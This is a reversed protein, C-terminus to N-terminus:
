DTVCYPLGPMPTYNEISQIRRFWEHIASYKHLPIHGEEALAIYPYCAIDAISLQDTAMWHRHKLHRNIWILLKEGQQQAFNLDGTHKFKIIARAKALTHFIEDNAVCLWQTIQSMSLPDDPYWCNYANKTGYQRALYILIAQSDWITTSDAELVPFEGRPNLKLFDPKKQQKNEIDVAIFQYNLQLFDMLLQAKYTNGSVNIGYLKLM